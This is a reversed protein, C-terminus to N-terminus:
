SVHEVNENEINNIRRILKIYNDAESGPVLTALSEERFDNIIFNEFEKAFTVM